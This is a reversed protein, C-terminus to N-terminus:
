ATDEAVVTLHRSLSRVEDIVSAIGSIGKAAAFGRDNACSILRQAHYAPAYEEVLKITLDRLTDVSDSIENALIELDDYGSM